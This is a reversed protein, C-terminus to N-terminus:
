TLNLIARRDWPSWANNVAGELVVRADLSAPGPEQVAAPIRRRSHSRMVHYSMVHSEREREVETESNILITICNKVNVVNVVDRENPTRAVIHAAGPKCSSVQSWSMGSLCIRM